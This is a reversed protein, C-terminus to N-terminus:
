WLMYQYNTNGCCISIINTNGCCISIINTLLTGDKLIMTICVNDTYTTPICVNDTYTTTICVNDSRITTPIGSMALHVRYLMIHYLKDIVHSLDTTKEPYETEEVLLVSRWRDVNNEIHLMKLPETLMTKSIYCKLPGTLMTKSIYHENVDIDNRVVFKEKVKHRLIFNSLREQENVHMDNRVVLKEKVKHRLTFNSLREHENSFVVSRDCTM